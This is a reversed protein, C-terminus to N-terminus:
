QVFAMKDCAEWRPSNGTLQQEQTSTFPFSHPDRGRLLTRPLVGTVSVSGKSQSWCSSVITMERLSSSASLHM